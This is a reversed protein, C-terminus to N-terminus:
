WDGRLSRLANTQFIGGKKGRGSAGERSSM